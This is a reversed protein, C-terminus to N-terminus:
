FAVRYDAVSGQWCPRIRRRTCITRPSYTAMYANGASVRPDGWIQFSTTGLPQIDFHEITTLVDLFSMQAIVDAWLDPRMTYVAGMLRVGASYGHAVIRCRSTYDGAILGEASTIFDTFNKKKGHKLV